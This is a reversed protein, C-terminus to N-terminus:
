LMSLMSLCQFKFRLYHKSSHVRTKRQIKGWGYFANEVPSCYWAPPLSLKAWLCNNALGWEVGQLVLLTFITSVHWCVIQERALLVVITKADWCPWPHSNPSPFHLTPASTLPTQAVVSSIWKHNRSGSLSLRVWVLWMEYHFAAACM